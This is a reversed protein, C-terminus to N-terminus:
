NKVLKEVVQKGGDVIRAFYVGDALESLDFRLTNSAINLPTTVVAGTVDLLEVTAQQSLPNALQVSVVDKTPNPFSSPKASFVEEFGIGGLDLYEVDDIYYEGLDTGGAYAYFDVSGLKDNLTTVNNSTNSAWLYATNTGVVLAAITGNFNVSIVVQFWEDHPYTGITATDGSDVFVSGDAPFTVDIAYQAPAADENHQINFYGGKGTPIYMWFSLAYVGSTKDGLKLLLDTTGGAASTAIIAVSNTGAHAYAASVQADESGGPLASWTGWNTSNSEAIFSGATFSEFGDSYLVQASAALPVVFLSLLVLTKM